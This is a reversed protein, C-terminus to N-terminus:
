AFRITTYKDNQKREGNFSSPANFVNGSTEDIRSHLQAHETCSAVRFEFPVFYFRRLGIGFPGVPLQEDAM